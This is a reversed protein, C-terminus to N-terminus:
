EAWIEIQVRGAPCLPWRLEGNQLDVWVTRDGLGGDLDTARVLVGPLRRRGPLGAVSAQLTCTPPTDLSVVVREQAAAIALFTDRSRDGLSVQLEVAREPLDLSFEGAADTVVPQGAVGRVAVLAGTVPQGDSGNVL